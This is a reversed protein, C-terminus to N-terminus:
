DVLPDHFLDRLKLILSIRFKDHGSSLHLLFMKYAVPYLVQVVNQQNFSFFVYITYTFM